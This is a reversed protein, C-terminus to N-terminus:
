SRGLYLVAQRLRDTDDDFLGLATNCKVCLIGRIKGTSHCHDVAMRSYRESTLAKFCIQCKGEAKLELRFLEEKTIGLTRCTQRDIQCVKCVKRTRGSERRIYFGSLPKTV